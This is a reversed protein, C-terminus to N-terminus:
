AQASVSEQLIVARKRGNAVVQGRHKLRGNTEVDLPKTVPYDFSLVDGVNLRLLNEVTLNPGRLRTDLHVSANRILHLARAQDAETAESKRSSWQQDFKQGLMKVTMSPVGINIRGALDGLKAEISVALVAENPALIQLLQPEAEYSEIDFTIAAIEAWADQLDRLIIRVVGDLISQEIETIERNVKAVSPGTNGLLLEVIPFVITPNLELLANTDFQAMRLSVLCTPSPLARLFEVFSVQEVALLNISLFARLYASLSSGLTRAFNEHLLQIARLQDKAIRDPRRFDYQLARKALDDKASGSMERFDLSSDSM